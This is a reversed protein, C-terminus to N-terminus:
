APSTAQALALPRHADRQHKYKTPQPFPLRKKFYKRKIPNSMPNKIEILVTADKSPPQEPKDYETKIDDGTFLVQALASLWADRVNEKSIFIVKAM